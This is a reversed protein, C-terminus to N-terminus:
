NKGSFVGVCGVVDLQYEKFNQKLIYELGEIDDKLNSFIGKTNYLDMIYRGKKTHTVGGNLITSGFVKGNQNLLPKINQFVKSKSYIDGPLCHLLYNVGISDFNNVDLALPDLINRQYIEPNFKKLRSFARNLSNINLDMLALRPTKNPFYCQKLFYGTGVGIDLHNASINNNYHALIHSTPCRWVFRNFYRLVVLDYEVMLNWRTYAAQGAMVKENVTM